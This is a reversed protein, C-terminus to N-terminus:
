YMDGIVIHCTEMGPTQYPEGDSMKCMTLVHDHRTHDTILQVLFIHCKKSGGM